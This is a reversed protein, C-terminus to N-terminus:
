ITTKANDYNKLNKITEITNLVDQLLDIRTQFNTIMASLILKSNGGNVLDQELQTYNTELKKLQIMTDDIIKKTEPTSESKLTNVQQEILSAFYFETRSVEPSIQAVQQELSPKSKYVNFVITCLIAISAAISLPKWWSKNKGTLTKTGQQTDLKELFRQEHGHAPAELDFSGELNKFLKDINDEKM